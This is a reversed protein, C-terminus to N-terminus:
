SFDMFMEAAIKTLHDSRVQITEGEQLSAEQEIEAELSARSRAEVVFQRLLEGVLDAAEANLSITMDTGDESLHQTILKKVLNPHFAAPTSSKEKSM